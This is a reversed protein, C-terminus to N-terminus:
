QPLDDRRRRRRRTTFPCRAVSSGVVEDSRYSNHSCKNHARELGVTFSRCCRSFVRYTHSLSFSAPVFHDHIDALIVRVDHICVYLGVRSINPVKTSPSVNRGPQTHLKKPSIAVSWETRRLSASRGGLQKVCKAFWMAKRHMGGHM